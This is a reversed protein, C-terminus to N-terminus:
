DVFNVFFMFGFPYFRLWVNFQLQDVRATTKGKKKPASTTTTTGETNNVAAPKPQTPKPSKPTSKPKTSAPSKVKSESEASGKEVVTLPQDFLAVTNTVPKTNEEFSQNEPRAQRESVFNKWFISGTVHVNAMKDEGFEESESNVEDNEEDIEDEDNNESGDEANGHEDLDDLAALKKAKKPNWEVDEESDSNEFSDVCYLDDLRFSLCIL